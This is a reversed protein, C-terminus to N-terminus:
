LMGARWKDYLQTMTVRVNELTGVSIFTRFNLTTGAALAGTRFVVNWKMTSYAADSSPFRFQGYGIGPFQPQPLDPSWCGMAYNGDPSALILPLDQEGAPLTESLRTLVRTAPNYTYFATLDGVLYGTPAEITFSNVAEPVYVQTLFQIAHRLGGYGVQVNKNFRYNSVHLKNIVRDCRKDFTDPPLWFAPLVQTTLTNGLASVRKLVSTSTTKRGDELSGAETPNFCEGHGNKSVAIQLQRGRDYANIFEKGNWWISDVAGAQKISASVSIIDNSVTWRGYKGGTAGEVNGQRGEKYGHTMMTALLAVLAFIRTAM